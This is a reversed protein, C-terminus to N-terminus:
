DEWTEVERFVITRKPDSSPTAGCRRCAPELPEDEVFERAELEIPKGSCTCYWRRYTDM